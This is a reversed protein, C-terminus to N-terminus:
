ILFFAPLLVCVGHMRFFSFDLFLIFPFFADLDTEFVTDRLLYGCWVYRLGGGLDSGSILLISLMWILIFYLM